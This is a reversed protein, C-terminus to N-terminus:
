EFLSLQGSAPRGGVIDRGVAFCYLSAPVFQVEVNAVRARRRMTRTTVLLQGIGNSGCFAAAPRIREPERAHRDSWKVEVAWSARQDPTLSVIDVEGQKWRAYHLSIHSEYHFWQAFVGTEVLAGIAEGDAGVPSFLATRMSPNTLYVKFYHARRFHRANRDVRHIRRLLFAAELYEIYRGLTPKSVGANSALEDLSVEQATNFALTTFLANLEQINSIGYLSPLDRLLVKDIIDSKVFRRPAERLAGSLAVEPYGGFNLYDVFRGNIEDVDEGPLPRGGLAESAAEILAEEDRLALYEHFTLPPLLFDTFRGAGSEASRLRLAAAASGSAVIRLLPNEDVLHKLHTEWGVLYQIEDFFVFCPESRPDVGTAEGYLVLFRELSVGLYIPHDVSLYCLRRPPVGDDLLQQICHHILVTKGVQRPGMLVVARRVRRDAVLPLFLDRYPRPQLRAHEEGVRHPERWWPNEAALRELVQEKPIERM